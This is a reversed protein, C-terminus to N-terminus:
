KLFEITKELVHDTRLIRFHGTNEIEIFKSIPWNNHVNKSQEIPIVTDNKDHIILSQNVNLSKVFDSVNLDNAKYGSESEIREILKKKVKDSIGVHNCVDDIRQSFRDPTTLMVYKNIHLDPNEYLAGTTAVGGFSHSVINDIELKRILSATLEIFEFFSTQGQSSYGHSPADFAYVKFNAEILKLVLDSFNGAQGEWGHVLLVRDGEGDWTYTSITFDKFSIDKRQSKNLVELENDRLKKVQPSTLNKYALETFASPFISSLFRIVKRKM